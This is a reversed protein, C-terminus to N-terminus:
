GLHGAQPAEPSRMFCCHSPRRDAPHQLGELVLVQRRGGTPLQTQIGGHLAGNGHLLPAIALGATAHPAKKGAHHDAAHHAAAVM